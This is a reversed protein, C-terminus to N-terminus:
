LGLNRVKVRLNFSRTRYDTFFEDDPLDTRGVVEIEVMRINQPSATQTVIAGNEMFYRFNLAVINEAFVVPDLGFSQIMLNPHLSDSQDVYFRIRNMSIIPSGVPYFRTLPMTDHRIRAPASMSRSALIFEGQDDAPDYIYVASNEPLNSLDHGQCVLDSTLQPMAMTLQVNILNGSDYTIVITDPNSDSSEIPFIWVPVNHGAMRAAKAIVEAAARVNSQLDAVQDQVVM